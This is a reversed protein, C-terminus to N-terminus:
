EGREERVAEVLFDAFADLSQQNDIYRCLVYIMSTSDWGVDDAYMMLTDYATM